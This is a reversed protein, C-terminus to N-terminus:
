SPSHSTESSGFLVVLAGDSAGDPGVGIEAVNKVDAWMVMNRGGMFSVVNGAEVIM